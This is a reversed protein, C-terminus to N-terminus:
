RTGEVANLLALLRSPEVSKDVRCDLPASDVGPLLAPHLETM